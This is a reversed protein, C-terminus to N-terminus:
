PRGAGRRRRDLSQKLARTWELRSDHNAFSLNAGHIRRTLVVDDLMREGLGLDRARAIWELGDGVRAAAEFPGVLDFARRSATMAGLHLGPQPGGGLRLRSAVAPDIGRDVRQVAHGFVIELGPDAALAELQVEVKRPHWLDDHDLFAIHTGVAAALGANRASGVGPRPEEVVEVTGGFSRAIEGSRDSSGNDVVVIQDLPRSQGLMSEIAEALHAEGDRVAVVGSVRTPEAIM